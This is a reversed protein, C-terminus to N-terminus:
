QGFEPFTRVRRQAFVRHTAAQTAEEVVGSGEGDVIGVLLAAAASGQAQRGAEASSASSSGASGGATQPHVAPRPHGSPRRRTHTAASIPTECGHDRHRERRRVPFGKVGVRRVSPVEVHGDRRYSASKASTILLRM